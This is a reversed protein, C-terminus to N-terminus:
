NITNRFFYSVSSLYRIKSVEDDSLRNALEAKISPTKQLKSHIDSMVFMELSLCHSKLSWGLYRNSCSPKWFTQLLTLNESLYPSDYNLARGWTLPPFFSSADLLSSFSVSLFALEFGLTLFPSSFSVLCLCHFTISVSCALCIVLRVRMPRVVRLM